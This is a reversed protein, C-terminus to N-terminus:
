DWRHRRKKKIKDRGKKQVPMAGEMGSKKAMFEQFEEDSRDRIMREENALFERLESEATPTNNLVRPTVFIVFESRNSQFDKSSLLSWLASSTDVNGGPRNKMRVDNNRIINGLVMSQGSRCIATTEVTHTDISGRMDAAPASLKASIKLDIGNGTEIPWVDIEIGVKKFHVDDGKYYPVESGSFISAKEGSKVVVSPNELVRGDGSENLHKIKPLFNFAFGIITKAMGGISDLMGNGSAVGGSGAPFSGPAWHVGLNRLAGRKLEMMHLEVEIMRGRGVSRGTEKVEILNLVDHTYLKAKEVARKADMSSYVMGDLVIRGRVDSVSVGPIDIADVIADVVEDVVNGSLKTRNRVRPDSRAMSEIQKFDEPWSVRGGIEVRGERIDVRVGNLDGFANRARDLVDKLTRTMVRVEVEDRQASKVDWVTLTTEGGAKGNIYISRRDQGVLYDCVDPDAVAIDGIEYNLQITKSQGKMMIHVKSGATAVYSLSLFICILFIRKYKM